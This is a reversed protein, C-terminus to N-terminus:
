GGSREFRDRRSDAAGAPRYVLEVVLTEGVGSVDLEEVTIREALWRSLAQSVMAKAMATTTLGAGEFV